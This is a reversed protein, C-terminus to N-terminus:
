KQIFEPIDRLDLFQVLIDVPGFLLHINQQDIHLGLLLKSLVENYASPKCKPGMYAKM